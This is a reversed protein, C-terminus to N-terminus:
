SHLISLDPMLSPGLQQLWDRLEVLWHLPDLLQWVLLAGLVLIVIALLNLVRVLQETM